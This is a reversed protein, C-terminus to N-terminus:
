ETTGPAGPPPALPLPGLAADRSDTLQWGLNALGRGISELFADRRPEAKPFYM